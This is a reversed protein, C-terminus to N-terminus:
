MASADKPNYNDSPSRHPGGKDLERCEIPFFVSTRRLLGSMLSATQPPPRRDEERRPM